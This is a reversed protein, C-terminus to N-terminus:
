SANDLMSARKKSQLEREGKKMADSSSKSRKWKTRRAQSIAPASPTSISIINKTANETAENEEERRGSSSSSTSIKMFFFFLSTKRKVNKEEREDLIMRKKAEKQM